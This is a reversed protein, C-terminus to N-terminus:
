ISVIIKFLGEELNQKFLAQGQESLHVGDGLLCRSDATINAHSIVGGQERYMLQRARRQERKRINEAVSQSAYRWATRPLMESFILTTGAYRARLYLILIHFEKNWERSGLRGIDNAGVHLVLYAPQCDGIERDILPRVQHLQLGSQGILKVPLPLGFGERFRQVYDHLRKILSSGM